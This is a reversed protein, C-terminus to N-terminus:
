HFAVAYPWFIVPTAEVQNNSIVCVISRLTSFPQYRSAVFLIINPVGLTVKNQIM